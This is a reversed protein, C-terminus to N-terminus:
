FLAAAARWIALLWLTLSLAVIYPLVPRTARRGHGLWEQFLTWRSVDRFETRSAHLAKLYSENMQKGGIGIGNHPRGWRYPVNLLQGM